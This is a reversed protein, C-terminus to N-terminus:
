AAFLNPLFTSIGPILVIIIVAVLQAGLIYLVDPFTKELGMKPDVVRMGAMLSLGVPPTVGAVAFNVIMVMGFHIPDIGFANSIPLFIPTLLVILSIVETLCGFIFLVVTVMLLFVTPTKAFGLFFDSILAPIGATTLIWSFATAIGIVIMITTSSVASSVFIHKLRSWTLEKYFAALVLGYVVASVSAETPTVIGTFVGGLIIVPSMLPFFAELCINLIEKATRKQKNVTGYGRKRSIIYSVICITACMAVGPIFGALFLDGISIGATVGLVVMAISPPIILGLTGSAGLLSACFGEGYGQKKMEPYVVGGIAMATAPASGSCTGFLACTVSATTALGGRFRGVALDALGMLRKTLGGEGMINGALLFLPLAMMSFSNMGYIMRQCFTVLNFNYVGMMVFSIIGMTVSVPMGMFLLVFFALLILGFM